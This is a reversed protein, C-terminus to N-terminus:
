ENWKEELICGLQLFSSKEARGQVQKGVEEVFIHIKKMSTCYM